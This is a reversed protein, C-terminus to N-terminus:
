AIFNMKKRQISLGKASVNFGPFDGGIKMM